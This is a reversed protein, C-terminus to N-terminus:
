GNKIVFSATKLLGSYGAALLTYTGSPDPDSGSGSGNGNGDATQTWVWGTEEIM